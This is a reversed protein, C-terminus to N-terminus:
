APRSRRGRAPRGPRCSGRRAGPRGARAPGGGRSRSPRCTRPPTRPRYGTSRSSRHRPRTPARLRRGHLALRGEDDAGARDPDALADFEVVAGDLGGVGEAAGAPPGHHDVRVRLRDRGVEIGGRPQVELREVRLADAADDVRLAGVLGVQQRSDHRVAPLRREVQGSRKGGAPDPQEARVELRDVLGLLPRPERREQVAEADRLGLAPHGVADVLGQGQGLADAVRDDDPRREDDAPEGDVEAVRRRVEGPLERRRRVHVRIAGDADVPVELADFDVDVGDRVPREHEDRAQELVDLQGADVAAVRDPHERRLGHGLAVLREDDGRHFPDHQREPRLAEHVGLEDHAVIADVEDLHIGRALRVTGNRDFTM